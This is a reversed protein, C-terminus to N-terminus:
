FSTLFLTFNFVQHKRSVQEFCKKSHPDEQEFVLHYKRNESSLQKVNKQPPPSFKSPDLNSNLIRTNVSSSSKTVVFTPTSKLTKQNHHRQMQPISPIHSVVSPGPSLPIQSLVRM